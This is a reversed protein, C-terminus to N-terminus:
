YPIPSVGWCANKLIQGAPFIRFFCPHTCGQGAQWYQEILNEMWAFFVKHIQQAFFTGTRM